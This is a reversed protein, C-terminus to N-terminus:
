ICVLRLTWNPGATSQLTHGKDLRLRVWLPRKQYSPRSVKLRHKDHLTRIISTATEQRATVTLSIGSSSFFAVISVCVTEVTAVRNHTDRAVTIIMCM